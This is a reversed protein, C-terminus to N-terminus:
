VFMQQVMEQENDNPMYCSPLTDGPTVLILLFSFWDLLPVCLYISLDKQVRCVLPLLWSINCIQQLHFHAAM